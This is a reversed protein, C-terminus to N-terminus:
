RIVALPGEAASPVEFHDFYFAELETILKFDDSNGAERAAIRRLVTPRDTALYVTEPVVGFPRLFECVRPTRSPQRTSAPTATVQPAIADVRSRPVAPRSTASYARVAAAVPLVRVAGGDAHALM